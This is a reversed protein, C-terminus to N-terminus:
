TRTSPRRPLACTRPSPRRPQPRRRVSLGPERRARRRARDDTRARNGRLVSSSPSSSGRATPASRHASAHRQGRGFRQKEGLDEREGGRRDVGRPRSEIDSRRLVNQDYGAIRRAPQRRHTPPQDRRPRFVHLDAGRHDVGAGFGDGLLGREAGGEFAPATEDRDVPPVFPFDDRLAFLRPPEPM